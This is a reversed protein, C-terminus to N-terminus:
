KVVSVTNMIKIKVAYHLSIKEMWEIKKKLTRLHCFFLSLISLDRWLEGKAGYPGLM